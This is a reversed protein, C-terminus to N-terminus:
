DFLYPALYPFSLLGVVIVTAEPPPLLGLRGEFEDLGELVAVWTDQVVEEAVAEDRVFVRAFRLLAGGHRGVLGAFASRDGARVRSVLGADDLGAAPEGAQTNARTSASRM